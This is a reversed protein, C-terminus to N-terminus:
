LKRSAASKADDKKHADVERLLAALTTVGMFANAFLKEDPKNDLNLSLLIFNVIVYFYFQSYQLEEDAKVRRADYESEMEQKVTNNKM